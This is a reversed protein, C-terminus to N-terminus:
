PRYLWGYKHSLKTLEKAVIDIEKRTRCNTFKIICHEKFDPLPDEIISLNLSYCDKETIGIVGITDGYDSYHFYADKASIRNGDYVSLNILDEPRFVFSKVWNNDKRASQHVQRLFM